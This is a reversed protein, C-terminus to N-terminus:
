FGYCPTEDHSIEVGYDSCTGNIGSTGSTGTRKKLGFFTDSFDLDTFYQFDVGIVLAGPNVQLGPGGFDTVFVQSILFGIAVVFMKYGTFFLCYINLRFFENVPEEARKGFIVPMREASPDIM